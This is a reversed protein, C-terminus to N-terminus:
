RLTGLAGILQGVVTHHDRGFPPLLYFGRVRDRIKSMLRAAMEVGRQQSDERSESADFANLVEDPIIVGPIKGSAFFEANRRSVLPMIGVLIPIKFDATLELMRDVDEERYVPQTYVFQAGAELKRQLWKVQATLGRVPNFGGGVSFNTRLCPTDNFLRGQNLMGILAMLNVSSKLDNVRSAYKDHDGVNPHDGTVALVGQIGAQWAGLLYSQTAILNRHSTSLHVLTPIGTEAQLRSASIVPDVTVKAGANDPIDFLHVGRQALYQGSNLFDQLPTTRGPRLEVSVVLPVKAFVEAIANPPAQPLPEPRARSYIRVESVTRPPPPKLDRVSEAVQAIHGPDTGCCGGVMCAGAEVLRRAYHGFQISDVNYVVRGRDIEPSGANPRAYLPLSSVGALIQLTELVDYPGRCNAGLLDPALAAFERVDAGTGTRGNQVGGVSLWVPKAFRRAARLAIRAEELDQFTELVLFDVGGEILAGMQQSFIEEQQEESFEDRASYIELPGVSGGVPRPGACRRAIRAGELNIEHVQHDRGHRSLKLINAGYTNTFLLDAGAELYSRHVLAVIEKFSPEVNLGDICTQHTGVLSQLRTGMAGDGVLIKNSFM